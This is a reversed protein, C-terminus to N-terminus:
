CPRASHRWTRRGILPEVAPRRRPSRGTYVLRFDEVDGTENAARLPSPRPLLNRAFMRSVSAIRCTTRQKSSELTTCTSAVTSGLAVDLDDLGFQHQGVELLRLSPELPHRLLGLDSSLTATASSRTAPTETTAASRTLSPRDLVTGRAPRRKRPGAGIRPRESRELRDEVHGVGASPSGSSGGPPAPPARRPARHAAGRGDARARSASSKPAPLVVLGGRHTLLEPTSPTPGRSTHDALGEREEVQDLEEGPPWSLSARAHAIGRPVRAREPRPPSWVSM